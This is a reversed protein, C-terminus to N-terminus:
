LKKTKDLDEQTENKFRGIYPTRGMLVIDFASFDFDVNTNQPVLALRKALEKNSLKNLATDEIDIDGHTPSLNRCINKLLTSKGSGNPGIISYFKGREINFSIDDLIQTDGFAFSLKDVKIPLTTKM